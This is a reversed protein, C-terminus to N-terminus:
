TQKIIQIRLGRFFLISMVLKMFFFQFFVEIHKTQSHYFENNAIHIDSQSYFFICM